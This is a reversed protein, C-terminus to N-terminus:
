FIFDSLCKNYCHTRACPGGNLAWSLVPKRPSIMFHSIYSFTNFYQLFGVATDSYLFESANSWWYATLSILSVDLFMPIRCPKLFARRNLSELSLVSRLKMPVQRVSSVKDMKSMLHQYLTIHLLPGICFFFLVFVCLASKFNNEGSSVHSYPADVGVTDSWWKLM